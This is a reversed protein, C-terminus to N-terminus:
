PREPSASEPAAAARLGIRVTTGKGEESAVSIDGGWGDIIQRSIALGLGSGSTRTSFHPEFIRPLVHEPIGRGNDRVTIVVESGGPAAGDRSIAILVEGAHALRANELVNLLVERLEDGQAMAHLPADAGVLRWRVADHTGDGAMSELGVVDRLIAAVDTPVAPARDNPASGYRSFARAIEDLRDIEALIRNVNQDLVRDFDVRADARARRLHQVGLRIPTLPNKIEHAVQRAMEGWALVRQARALETIDDVTVVAGGRTLRTLRVRLQQRERDIEFAEDEAGDALFRLVPDTLDRAAVDALVTGPPLRAGLLDDARPNALVVRGSTDVAIVGSAVNRLIAATRRQAEELASRSANLDEAMQRFAAFVPRFEVTPEQELPPARNGAALSLAAERLTGIPRALQRAAVGSLWLAGLAGVATAFLVFISLDDRGRGLALEDARAPASLVADPGPRDIARFGFLATTPGVSVRRGISEEDGIVLLREVDERLFRGVPALSEFLPDSANRLEGALYLLLPTRLRGAEQAVWVSDGGEGPTVARLTERVLVDRSHVAEVSLQQYSWAAFAIAPIVFFAFLAITLRLRYSRGWTRRRSRVWRGFGGDAVVSLSWLLGVIALDFLIVLTGRQVLAWPQRLEVEVHAHAQGAGTRLIWDGHLATERRRWTAQEATPTLRSRTTDVPTLQLTYPPEGEPELELGVLRVFPDSAILRTKPAVVVATALTTDPPRSPVALLLEVAPDGPLVTVLSKGAQAAQEVGRGVADMPVAFLATAFSVIPTSRKSWVFLKTPYGAAALDSAVYHQLLAARTTPAPEGQLSAGFRELLTRAYGDPESLAALDREALTVRGRATRGWVLTAAGLAAVMAASVVVFRTQRSLALGVIAAIWVFTYWWPWQGPAEWVVPALLAALAAVLPGTFPWLGRARGLIAAGAGAGALLVAVAALFLPIEWIMWLAASVGYSPPRIGRALDRLLFPGLGAILLVVLTALWPSPRRGRRLVTLLALLVIASTIGLAGASATLSGALPTFFVSPDFLRTLNSFENLPVLATCAVAVGLAALRWPLARSARWAAIIFCAFAAVLLGGVQVRLRERVKQIIEGAELPATRADLLPHGALSFHLVPASGTMRGPASFIFDDLAQARAVRQAIPQTLRDAPAAASLLATAVARRDTRQAVAYFTLYFESASVGIRERLTDPSTRTRGAWAIASDGQYLIVGREDGGRALHALYAFAEGRDRPAELASDAAQLLSRGTASLERDLEALAHTAVDTQWHPWDNTIRGLERQARAALLLGAALVIINALAWGRPAARFRVALVIAVATALAWAVLYQVSPTDLWRSAALLAVAAATAWWGSAAIAPRRATQVRSARSL